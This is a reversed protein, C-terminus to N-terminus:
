LSSQHPSKHYLMNLSFDSPSLRSTCSRPLNKASGHTTVFQSFFQEIHQTGSLLSINITLCITLAVVFTKAIHLNETMMTLLKDYLVELIYSIWGCLLELLVM